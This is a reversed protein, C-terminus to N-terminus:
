KKDLLFFSSDVTHEWDLPQPPIIPSSTVAPYANVSFNENNDYLVITEIRNSLVRDDRM